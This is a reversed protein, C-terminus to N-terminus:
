VRSIMELQEWLTLGEGFLAWGAGTVFAQDAPNAPWSIESRETLDEFQLLSLQCLPAGVSMVHIHPGKFESHQPGFAIM